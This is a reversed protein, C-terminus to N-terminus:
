ASPTPLVFTNVPPDPRVSSHIHNIKQISGQTDIPTIAQRLFIHGTAIEGTQKPYQCKREPAMEVKDSADFDSVGKLRMGDRQATFPYSEGNMEDVVYVWKM